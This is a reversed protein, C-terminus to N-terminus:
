ACTEEERFRSIDPRFVLQVSGTEGHRNKKVSLEVARSPPIPSRNKSGVLFMAVDCMYELDGSEKLSDLSTRGAGDGYGGQERNQSSIALVPSRLRMALERLETGIAEVRSRVTDLKRYVVAAKAFLQLYDVVLLCRDLKHRSMAEAARAGIQAVSLRSTGEIFAFRPAVDSAWAVAATSLKKLDATGRWVDRTNIKGRGCVAKLTLNEASNEFTSFIVPVKRAVVESMQLVLSTKGMGPPGGLLYLGAYLGGLKEDLKQIGTPLGMVPLGTRERELQRGEADSMVKVLTKAAWLLGGAQTNEVASRARSAAEELQAIATVAPKDEDYLRQAVEELERAVVRRMFLNNVHQASAIPDSAAVWGDLTSPPQGSRIADGVANWADAEDCIAGELVLGDLEWFMATKQAAAAILGREAAADTFEGQLRFEHM